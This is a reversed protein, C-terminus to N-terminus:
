EGRGCYKGRGGEGRQWEGGEWEGRKCYKGRGGGGERDEEGGEWGGGRGSVERATSAPRRVTVTACTGMGSTGEGEKGRRGGRESVERATNGWQEVMVTVCTDTGSTGKRGMWEGRGCYKDRGGEWEGRECYKGTAGGNCHCMYGNRVDGGRLAERGGRGSVERGSEGGRENVERVTSAGGERVGWEGGRGSMERVGRGGRGEWEGRECYKGTVGGNCNCVYGNRVDGEEGERRGGM